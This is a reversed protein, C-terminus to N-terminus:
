SFAQAFTNLWYWVKKNITSEAMIKSTSQQYIAWFYISQRDFPKEEEKYKM